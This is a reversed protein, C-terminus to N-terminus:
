VRVGWVSNLFKEARLVLLYMVVAALALTVIALAAAILADKMRVRREM